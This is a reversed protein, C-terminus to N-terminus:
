EKEMTCQLPHQHQRSFDMVQAVKTEALKERATKSLRSYNEVPTFEATSNRSGTFAMLGSKGAVIDGQRLTPDNGADLRAM